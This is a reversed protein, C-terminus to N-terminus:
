QTKQVRDLVLLTSDEVSKRVEVDEVSERVEVINNKLFPM